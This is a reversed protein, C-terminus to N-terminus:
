RDAPPDLAAGSSWQDRPAGTADTAMATSGLAQIRRRMRWITQRAVRGTAYTARAVRRVRGRDVEWRLSDSVVKSTRGPVALGRQDLWTCLEHVSMPGAEKHLAVVLAYRLVLGTVPVSAPPVRTDSMGRPHGDGTPRTTPDDM